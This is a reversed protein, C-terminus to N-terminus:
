TGPLPRGAVTESVAYVSDVLKAAGDVLAQMSGREETEKGPGFRKCHATLQQSFSYAEFWCLFSLTEGVKPAELSVGAALEAVPTSSSSLPALPGHSTAEIVPELAVVEAPRAQAPGPVGYAGMHTASVPTDIGVLHHMDPIADTRISLQRTPSSSLLPASSTSPLRYSALPPATNVRGRPPEFPNRDISARPTRPGPPLSYIPSPRTSSRSSLVPTSSRSVQVDSKSRGARTTFEPAAGWVCQRGNASCAGCMPLVNDCKSHARPCAGCAHPSRADHSATRSRAPQITRQPPHAEDAPFSYSSNDSM